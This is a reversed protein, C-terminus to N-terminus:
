RKERFQELLEKKIDELKLKYNRHVYHWSENDYSKHYHFGSGYDADTLFHEKLHEPHGANDWLKELRTHNLFALAVAYYHAQWVCGIYNHKHLRHFRKCAEELQTPYLGRPYWGLVKEKSNHYENCWLQTDMMAKTIKRM